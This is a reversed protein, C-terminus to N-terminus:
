YGIHSWPNCRLIRKVSLYTGKFVGHRELAEIAYHSCTPKFRCSSHSSLPLLQYLKIFFILIHKM